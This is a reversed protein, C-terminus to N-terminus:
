VFTCELLCIRMDFICTNYTRTYMLKSASIQAHVTNNYMRCLAIRNVHLEVVVHIYM